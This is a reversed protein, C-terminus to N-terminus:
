ETAGGGQVTEQLIERRTREAWSRVESMERAAGAYWRLIFGQSRRLGDTTMLAVNSLSFQGRELSRADFDWSFVPASGPHAERRALERSMAGALRLCSAAFSEFSPLESYIRRVISGFLAADESLRDAAEADDRRIRRRYDTERLSLELVHLAEVTFAEIEEDQTFFRLGDKGSRRAHQMQHAAEHVFAPCLAQALRRLAAPDSLLAPLSVSEARLWGQIFEESLSIDRSVANFEGINGPMLRVRLALPSGGEYFRVVREGARTGAAEELLDAALREALTRREEDSFSEAERTVRASNLEHVFGSEKFEPRGALASSLYELRGSVPLFSRQDLGDLVERLGAKELARRATLLLRVREVHFELDGRERGPLLPAVLDSRSRLHALAQEDIREPDQLLIPAEEQAWGSLVSARETVPSNRWREETRKQGVLWGRQGEDLTEWELLAQRTLALKEPSRRATWALVSAPGPGIGAGTLSSGPDLRRILASRLDGASKEARLIQSFDVLANAREFTEAASGDFLLNLMRDDALLRSASEPDGGDIGRRLDDFATRLEERAPGSQSPPQVKPTTQRPVAPVPTTARIAPAKRDRVDPVPVAPVPTPAAALFLGTGGILGPVLVPAAGSSLDGASALLVPAAVSFGSARGPIRLVQAPAAVALFGVIIILFTSIL